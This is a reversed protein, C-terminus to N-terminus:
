SGGNKDGQKTTVNDLVEDPADPLKVQVNTEPTTAPPVPSPSRFLYYLVFAALLVIVVIAVIAVFNSSNNNAM